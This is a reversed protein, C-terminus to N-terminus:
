RGRIFLTRADQRPRRAVLLFPIVKHSKFGTDLLRDDVLVSGV